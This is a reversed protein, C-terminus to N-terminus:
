PCAFAELVHQVNEFVHELAEHVLADAYTIGSRKAMSRFQERRRHADPSVEGGELVQEVKVVDKSLAGEYLILVRNAAQVEARFKALTEGPGRETNHGRKRTEGKSIPVPPPARVSV